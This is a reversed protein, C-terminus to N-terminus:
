EGLANKADVAVMFDPESIKSKMIATSSFLEKPSHFSVELHCLFIEQRELVINKTHLVSELMM